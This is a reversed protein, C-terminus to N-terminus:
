GRGRSGKESHFVRASFEPTQVDFGSKRLTEVVYDVSAEYGPTGVARTGNNANAIDQLKSLHAMMADTTVKNRITNAFDTAAQNNGDGQSKNSSGGCGVAPFVVIAVVALIASLTKSRHVMEVLSSPLKQKRSLRMRVLPHPKRMMM